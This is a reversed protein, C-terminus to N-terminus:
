LSRTSRSPPPRILCLPSRHISITAVSGTSLTRESHNQLFRMGAISSASTNTSTHVVCVCSNILAPEIESASAAHACAVASAVTHRFSVLLTIEVFPAQGPTASRKTLLEQCPNVIVEGLRSRTTCAESVPLALKLFAVSWTSRPSRRYQGTTVPRYAATKDPKVRRATQSKTRPMPPTM